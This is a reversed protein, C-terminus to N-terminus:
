KLRIFALTIVTLTSLVLPMVAIFESTALSKAKGPEVYVIDNNHLYYYPSNFVDRSTLDIKGFTRKGQEERIVTVTKRKGHITLDGAMGIAEPITVRENPITFSSPRAVEGLVTVKYNLFRIFVSPAELYSELRKKITDRAVRTTLGAVKIPGLVPMEVNGKSDVLYGEDTVAVTNNVSSTASISNFISSAEKNINTV